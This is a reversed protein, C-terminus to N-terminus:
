VESIASMSPSSKLKLGLQEQLAQLFTTGQSDPQVSSDPPSASNSEPTWEIVFDFRGSLGTQDLMPRGLHGLSPLSSALLDMTTNRSGVQNMGNPKSILMYVDCRPPFVGAPNVPSDDSPPAGPADCPAGQAHPRLKPGTKGPKALTLALVPVQQTEFHVKLQFRDALLSQMMLRMQDKTPNNGEARAQIRFRESAVWKPLPAIISRVQDPTLMLKYAFKIYTALQFDGSFRGGTRSYADGADLPFNPPVFTGPKSPKISAVEFAMKGGAATQWEPVSQSQATPAAITMWGAALLLLEISFNPTRSVREIM